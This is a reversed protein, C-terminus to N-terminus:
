ENAFNRFRFYNPPFEKQTTGCLKLHEDQNLPMNRFIRVQVAYNKPFLTRATILWAKSAYIDSKLCAKARYVLWEEQSRPPVDTAAAMKDIPAHLCNLAIQYCYNLSTHM